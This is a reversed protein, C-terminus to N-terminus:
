RTLCAGCRGKLHVELVIAGRAAASSLFVADDPLCTVKRCDLCVFHPHADAAHANPDAREFRWTHDGLDTRAVLGADSLAMLNRWVTVRDIGHPALRGTLDAHSVAGPTRWLERLVALRPLTVRLHAGRLASALQAEDIESPKSARKTAV